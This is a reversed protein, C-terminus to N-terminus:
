ASEVRHGAEEQEGSPASGAVTAEVPGKLLYL